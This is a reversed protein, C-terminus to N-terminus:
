ITVSEIFCPMVATTELRGSGLTRWVREHQTDYYDITAAIQVLFLLM